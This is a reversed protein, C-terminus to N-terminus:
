WWLRSAYTRGCLVLLAKCGSLFVPLLSLNSSINNQDICAKDLWLYPSRGETREFTSAWRRLARWKPMPPDHWSHSLFVDCEGLQAPVTRLHLAGKDFNATPDREVTTASGTIDSEQLASFPLVRFSEHALLSLKRPSIRALMGAVAAAERDEAVLMLRSLQAYAWGRNTASPLAAGVVVFSLACGLLALMEPDHLSCTGLALTGPLLCCGLLM